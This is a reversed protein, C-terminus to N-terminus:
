PKGSCQKRSAGRELRPLVGKKNSDVREPHSLVENTRHVEMDKHFNSNGKAEHQGTISISVQM